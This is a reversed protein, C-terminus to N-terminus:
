IGVLWSQKWEYPFSPFLPVLFCPTVSFWVKSPEMPRQRCAHVQQFCVFAVRAFDGVRFSGGATPCGVSQHLVKGTAWSSKDPQDYRTPSGLWLFTFKCPAVACSPKVGLYVMAAMRERRKAIQEKEAPKAM